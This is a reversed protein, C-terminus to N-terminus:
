TAPDPDTYRFYEPASEIVLPTAGGFHAALMIQGTDAMGELIAFRTQL